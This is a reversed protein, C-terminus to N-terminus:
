LCKQIEQVHVLVGGAKDGGGPGAFVKTLSKKFSIEEILFDALKFNSNRNTVRRIIKMNAGYEQLVELNYAGENEHDFGATRTALLRALIYHPANIKARVMIRKVSTDVNQTYSLHYYKSFVPTYKMLWKPYTANIEFRRM